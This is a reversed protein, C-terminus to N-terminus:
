EHNFTKNGAVQEIIADLKNNINKNMFYMYTMNLFSVLIIFIIIIIMSKITASHEKSIQM